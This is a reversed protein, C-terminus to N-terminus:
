NSIGEQYDTELATEAFTNMENIIELADEVIQMAIPCGTGEGLRMKLNLIPELAMAEAAAKYAPEEATHSPIMYEKVLPNLRYALLAAAISIVGDVVIPIRYYAAGLFLGCLGAIDLGGVKSLIDIADNSDPTLRSLSESIVTKKHEYAEDTLGAGRGVYRGVDKLGLAAIICAAATTTNAMGVEGTGIIDYGNEHAYRALEIGVEIARRAIDATMAKDRYFNGTGEMLKHSLINPHNLEGKVGMDVIKLDVGARNCLVNIGCKVGRAYFGMLLNTFQQPAAAVGEDYIGNDAGLVFHIKKNLRNKMKGTIGAMQISIEELRGLSGAPKVLTNQYESAAKMADQHLPKIGNIIKQM